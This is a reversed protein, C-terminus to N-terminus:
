HQGTGVLGLLSKELSAYWSPSRFFEGRVRAGQALRQYLGPDELLLEIAARLSEVSRPEVLLGSKGHEVVEPIAKWQTAIVPIGCQLAELVIGPYGEGEFYSPFLLVDHSTLVRPVEESDLTGGYTAKPHGEFISFDTNPMRPGFVHLHCDDPLFRCSELAEGLGKEMRLQSIFLLKRVRTRSKQPPTSIDRTNPFWRVNDWRSFTRCLSQTEMYILPCTMYTRQAVTRHVPHAGFFSQDFNGGFLHIVLPKKWMRCIFWFCLAVSKGANWSINLLVVDSKHVQRIGKFITTIFAAINVFAKFFAHRNTHSRSTSIIETEFTRREQFQRVMEAFNVKTGGIVDNYIPLPGILLVSPKNGSM